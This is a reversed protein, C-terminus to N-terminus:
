PRSTYLTGTWDGKKIIYIRVRKKARGLTETHGVSSSQLSGCLSEERSSKSHLKGDGYNSEEEDEEDRGVGMLVLIVSRRFQRPPGNESNIGEKTLTKIKQVPAEELGPLGDELETKESYTDDTCPFNYVSVTCVKSCRPPPKPLTRLASRKQLL